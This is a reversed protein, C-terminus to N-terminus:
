LLHFWQSLNKKFFDFTEKTRRSTWENTIQKLLCKFLFLVGIHNCSMKKEQPHQREKKEKRPLYNHGSMVSQPDLYAAAHLLSRLFITIACFHWGFVCLLITATAQSKKQVHPWAGVTRHIIESSYWKQELAFFM